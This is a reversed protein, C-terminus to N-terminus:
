GWPPPKSKNSLLVPPFSFCLYVVKFCVWFRIRPFTHVYGLWWMSKVGSNGNRSHYEGSSFSLFFFFFLGLNITDWHGALLFNLSEPSLHKVMLDWLSVCLCKQLSMLLVHHLALVGLECPNLIVHAHALLLSRLTEYTPAILCYNCLM